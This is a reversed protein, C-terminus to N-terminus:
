DCGMEPLSLTEIMQGENIYSKGNCGYLGVRGMRVYLNFFGSPENFPNLVDLLLDKINQLFDIGLVLLTMILMLNWMFELHTVINPKMKM